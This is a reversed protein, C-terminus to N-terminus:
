LNIKRSIIYEPREKIEDFISGIYEGLVGITMLQVGGFFIVAVLLSAWGPVTEILNFIKGIVAYLILALGVVINLFGLSIALKLPKKSFYLLGTTAFKVMKVLPYKTEGALRPDRTYHFPVQKFGIWSILGRIFKNKESLNKFENIVTRDILRFDGTDLPIPVDSLFNILRYFIKSTIKKFFSEGRRKKRVGYVVHCNEKDRVAIMDRILEPPDQMDADIIVAVDGSCSTIGASVAPQHGFNRSFSIVKVDADKGAIEELIRMTGDSSGDDVFVIEHVEGEIQDLVDKIRQYGRELVAEENYCPVIVSVKMESM